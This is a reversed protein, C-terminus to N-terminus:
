EDDDEDDDDDDDFLQVHKPHRSCNSLVQGSDDVGHTDEAGVEDVASSEADSDDCDDEGGGDDDADDRAFNKADHDCDCSVSSTPLRSLLLLLVGAM